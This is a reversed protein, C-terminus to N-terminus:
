RDRTVQEGKARMAGRRIVEHRDLDVVMQFDQLVHTGALPECGPPGIVVDAAVVEGDYVVLCFGYPRATGSGDALELRVTGAPEIGLADAIEQSVWARTAGADVLFSVEQQRNPDKINRVTLNPYIESMTGDSEGLGTM